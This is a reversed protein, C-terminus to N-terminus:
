MGQEWPLTIAGLGPAQLIETLLRPQKWQEPVLALDFRRIDVQNSLDQGKENRIIVQAPRSEFPHWFARVQVASSSTSKVLERAIVRASWTGANTPHSIHRGVGSPNCPLLTGMADASSTRGSSGLRAGLGTQFEEGALNVHLVADGLLPRLVNTLQERVHMLTMTEIHPVRIMVTLRRTQEVWVEYDTGLWFWDSNTLREKEIRQALQQARVVVHPLLEPTEKTAYGVINWAERTREGLAWSQSMPEIAIFPALDERVGAEAVVRQVLSSVEFDARSAVEGAVFLAGRGGMARIDLCASPDRLLYEQAITAAVLDCVRDPHGPGRVRALAM